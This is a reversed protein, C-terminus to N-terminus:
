VLRLDDMTLERKKKLYIDKKHCIKMVSLQKKIIKYLYKQICKWEFVQKKDAIKNGILDNTPKKFQEKLNSKELLKQSSKNSM